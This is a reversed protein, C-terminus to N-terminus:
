SVRHGAGGDRTNEWLVILCSPFNAKKTTLWFIFKTLFRGQATIGKEREERDRKQVGNIALSGYLM